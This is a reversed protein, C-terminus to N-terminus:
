PEYETNYKADIANHDTCMVSYHQAATTIDIALALSKWMAPGVSHDGICFLNKTERDRFAKDAFLNRFHTHTMKRGFIPPGSGAYRGKNMKTYKRLNVIGRTIDAIPLLLPISVWNTTPRIHKCLGSVEAQYDSDRASRMQMTSCLEWKRRGTVLCLAELLRIHNGRVDWNIDDQMIYEQATKVMADIEETSFHYATRDDKEHRNHREVEQKKQIKSEYKINDPCDFDYFPDKMVRYSKFKDFLEKDQFIASRSAQIWHIQAATMNTCEERLFHLDAESGQVQSSCFKLLNHFEQKNQYKSNRTIKHRINTFAAYIQKSSKGQMGQIVEKIAQEPDHLEMLIHIVRKHNLKTM